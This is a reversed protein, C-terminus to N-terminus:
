WRRLRRGPRRVVLFTPAADISEVFAEEVNGRSSDAESRPDYLIFPVRYAEDYFLEMEFMWHDGVYEGHNSTFCILTKEWLGKEKMWEFLRGLHDDIEPILGHYTARRQRWVSEKDYDLSRREIDTPFICLTRIWM